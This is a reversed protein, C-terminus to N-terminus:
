EMWSKQAKHDWQIGGSLLLLQLVLLIVVVMVLLLLNITKYSSFFVDPISTFNVEHGIHNFCSSM